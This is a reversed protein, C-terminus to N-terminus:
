RFGSLDFKDTVAPGASQVPPHEFIAIFVQKPVEVGLQDVVVEYSQESRLSVVFHRDSCQLRM